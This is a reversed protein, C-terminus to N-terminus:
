KNCPLLSNCSLAQHPPCLIGCSSVLSVYDVNQQDSEAVAQLEQVRRKLPQAQAEADQARRSWAEKEKRNQESMSRCHLFVVFQLLDPNPHVDSIV